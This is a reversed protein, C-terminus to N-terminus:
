GEVTDMAKMVLAIYFPDIDSFCAGYLRGPEPWYDEPLAGEMMARLFIPDPVGAEEFGKARLLTAHDNGIPPYQGDYATHSYALAGYCGPLALALQVTEKKTTHMLPTTVVLGDPTGDEGTFTGLNSTEVFSDIFDPRCDPYGGYDESSVGTVLMDAGIVYARNAAITLFLQNRMPVFTKELGGPLADHGSYQELENDSVLPSTGKLVGSVDVIEHRAVGALKAITRAAEIEIRHRQGYDFTIAHVEFGKNVTDYLCTTSDQGGSFVVVAKRKSM